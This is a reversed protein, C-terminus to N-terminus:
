NSTGAVLRGTSGVQEFGPAVKLVSDGHTLLVTEGSCIGEFLSCQKQLQLAFTGDEHLDGRGVVGGFSENM